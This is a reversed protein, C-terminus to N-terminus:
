EKCDIRVVAEDYVRCAGLRWTTRVQTADSKDHRVSISTGRKDCIQKIAGRQFAVCQRITDGGDDVTRLRKILKFKFGMFTDIKGEALAKVTNFDASQVQTTNLLESRQKVTWLLVRNADEDDSDLEDAEDLIDLTKILKALTFGQGGHEVVQNQPLAVPTGTGDKGVVVPDLAAEWANDDCDRNYAACHQMVLSSTPLTVEGLNKADWEDLPQAVDFAKQHAWRLDMSVDSWRTDAHRTTIEQSDVDGIRNFSKREGRFDIRDVFGDLRSKKQGLRALWNASFETSFHERVDETLPM